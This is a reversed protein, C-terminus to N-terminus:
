ARKTKGTTKKAHAHAIAEVMAMFQAEDICETGYQKAKQAKSSGSGPDAMVLYHLDKTVGSLLAGGREEVMKELEKRPRGLAGTFCFTKGALPGANAKNVPVVGVALLRGIEAKRAKIGDVVAKGKSPGVGPLAAIEEYKAAQVKEISDFGASVIAKATQLGFNEIGLAALFKPLSLPLQAKLNDLVKQAIIMGRRELNAIQKAELKYLDAPEAVLEAEVLQTILKDGWELVGIADIWNQIRGEVLAQCEINRCSLYEGVKELTSKCTTCATPAKAPKKAHKTVVEEVYPIVDNRRSVLVEDGIGIGLATVNSANHLSARRVVAGALDVPEVIAVPTVRGSSGTEWIIDVLKTVKAQSAFKFAIAARPRNGLEGLMHQAHVDNARVVLGDIEYDLKARKTAHYEAHLALAGDLDTAKSNPVELGLAKLRAIKKVETPYDEGDLDYFLVTLHECGKGDLRKSTGSAQNRPNAAGPFAKKMDSLRLIIEGRVTLSVPSKLKQPVGKMRCANSLIREGVQGDGRTIADALKGKDYTVALSLGDLKETVFLDNTITKLKDKKGLEDCRQAWQRFEDENVAKNLSGMTIAHNAKEWATPAAPSGVSKLLAHEPDLERLEDELADYAADSVLPQDNYYADKYKKLLKALEAIRAKGNKM